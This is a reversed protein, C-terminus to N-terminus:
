IGPTLSNTTHIYALLLGGLRYAVEHHDKWLNYFTSFPEEGGAKDAVKFLQLIAPNPAGDLTDVVKGLSFSYSTSSDFFDKGQFDYSIRPDLELVFEELETAHLLSLYARARANVRARTADRDFLIHRITQMYPPLTRAIYDPDILEEGLHGSFGVSGTAAASYNVLLTRAHNLM